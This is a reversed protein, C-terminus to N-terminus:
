DAHKKGGGGVVPGSKFMTSLQSRTRAHYPAFLLRWVFNLRELREALRVGAELSHNTTISYHETEIRWGNKIDAHRQADEAASIWRRRYYREGREYRAVHDKPLWGFKAHWGIADEAPVEAEVVDGWGADGTDVALEDM